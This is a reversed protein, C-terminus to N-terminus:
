GMKNEVYELFKKVAPECPRGKLTLIGIEWVMEDEEFPIMLLGDQKMDEHVLNM